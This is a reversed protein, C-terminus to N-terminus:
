TGSSNKATDNLLRFGNIFEQTIKLAQARNDKHDHFLKFGRCAAELIKQVMPQEEQAFHGLVQQIAERGERRGIGLRLRYFDRSGLHEVLSNIGKHGASGGSFKFRISGLPIDLEDHAVVIDRPEVAYYAAVERAVQGSNNMYTRPKLLLRPLAPPASFRIKWLEYANKGSHQIDAFPNKQETRLLADILMFGFNHRTNEYERGPNGLGILMGGFTM